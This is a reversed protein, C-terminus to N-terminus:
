CRFIRYGRVVFDDKIESFKDSSFDPFIIMKSDESFVSFKLDSLKFLTPKPSIRIKALLGAGYTITVIINKREISRPMIIDSRQLIPFLQGIGTIENLGYQKRRKGRRRVELISRTHALLGRYEHLVTIRRKVHYMDTSHWFFPDFWMQDLPKSLRNLENEIKCNLDSNLEYINLVFGHGRLELTFDKM